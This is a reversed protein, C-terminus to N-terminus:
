RCRTRAVGLRVPGQERPRADRDPHQQAMEDKTSKETVAM